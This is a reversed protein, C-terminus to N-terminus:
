ALLFKKILSQTKANLRIGSGGSVMITDFSGGDGFAADAYFCLGSSAVRGRRPGVVAVDYPAPKRALLENASSFVEAPGAVDLTEVADYVLIAVRRAKV